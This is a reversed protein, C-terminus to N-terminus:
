LIVIISGSVTLQQLQQILAVSAGNVPASLGRCCSERIYSAAGGATLTIQTIGSSVGLTSTAAITTAAPILKFRILSRVVLFPMQLPCQCFCYYIPLSVMTATGATPSAFASPIWSFTLPVTSTYFHGNVNYYIRCM